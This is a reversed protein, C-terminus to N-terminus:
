YSASVMGPQLILVPLINRFSNSEDRHGSDCTRGCMERERTQQQKPIRMSFESTM